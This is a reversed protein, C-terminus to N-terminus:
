RSSPRPAVTTWTRQPSSGRLPAGRETPFHEHVAFEDIQPPATVGLTAMAPGIREQAFRDFQARSEWFDIARWGGEVPGSAHFLLGEPPVSNPDILENVRDFMEATGGSWTVATGVAM